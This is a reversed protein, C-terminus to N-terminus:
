FLLYFLFVCKKISINVNKNEGYKGLSFDCGRCLNLPKLLKSMRCTNLLEPIHKHPATHLDSFYM